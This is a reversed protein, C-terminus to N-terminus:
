ITIIINLNICKLGGFMKRMIKSLTPECFKIIIEKKTFRQVILALTIFNRSDGRFSSPICRRPDSYCQNSYMCFLIQVAADYCHESTSYKIFRKVTRGAARHVMEYTGGCKYVM